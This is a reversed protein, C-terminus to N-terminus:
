SRIIVQPQAPDLSAYISDFSEVLSVGIGFAFMLLVLFLVFFIGRLFLSFLDSDSIKAAQAFRVGHAYNASIQMRKQGVPDCGAVGFPLDQLGSVSKQQPDSAIRRSAVSIKQGWRNEQPVQDTPAVVRMNSFVTNSEFSSPRDPRVIQLQESKRELDVIRLHRYRVSHTNKHAKSIDSQVPAVSRLRAGAFDATQKIAIATM